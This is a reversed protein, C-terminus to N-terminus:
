RNKFSHVLINKISKESKSQVTQIYIRHLIIKRQLFTNKTILYNNDHM